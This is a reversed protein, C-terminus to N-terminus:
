GGILNIAKGGVINLKAPIFIGGSETYEITLKPRYSETAHDSFAYPNANYWDYNGDFDPEGEEWGVLLFGYNDAATRIAEITNTVDIQVKDGSNIVGVTTPGDESPWIRDTNQGNAGGENWSTPYERYAWSSEGTTANGICQTGEGWSTLLRYPTIQKQNNGGGTATLELIANTISGTVKSLDFKFLHRGFATGNDWSGLWADACAGLNWATQQSRMSADIGESSDLQLVITPDVFVPYVANDLDDPNLTITLEWEGSSTNTLKHELRITEPICDPNLNRACRSDWATPKAFWFIPNSEGKRKALLIRHRENEPAEALIGNVCNVAFTVKNWDPRKKLILLKRIKHGYVLFRLESSEDIEWVVGCSLKGITKPKLDSKSTKEGFGKLWLAWKAGSKPDTILILPAGSSRPAFGIFLEHDTIEFRHEPYFSKGDAPLTNIPKWVGSNHDRFFRRKVSVEVTKTRGRTKVLRATANLIM